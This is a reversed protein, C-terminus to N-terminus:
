TLIEEDLVRECGIKIIDSALADGGLTLVRVQAEICCSASFQKTEQQTLRVKATSGEMSVDGGEKILVVNGGQAYVIRICSIIAPDISLLFRHEPTTLRKM